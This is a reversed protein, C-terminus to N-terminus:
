PKKEVLVSAQATGNPLGPVVDVTRVAQEGRAIARQVAREVTAYAVPDPTCFAFIREPGTAGDLVAGGPLAGGHTIKAGSDGTAPYLRSVQGTADVSVVWVRCVEKPTVKFRLASHTPIAEGEAVPRAGDAAGLFVSLLLSGPRGGKIQTQDLEPVLPEPGTSPRTVLLLAAMAAAVPLPLLLMWRRWSARRGAAAEEIKGLTAPYVYQLFQQGEKEMRAVRAQCAACKGVHPAYKSFTQELLYEELALDLPCHPTM